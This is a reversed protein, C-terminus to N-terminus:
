VDGAVFLKPVGPAISLAAYRNPAFTDTVSVYPDAPIGGAITVGLYADCIVGSSYMTASAGVQYYGQRAVTIQPGTTTVDTWSGTTTTSEDTSISKGVAPGGIFMWKYTTQSADYQFQWCTGNADVATAVWIDGTAPSAPPGAAMT